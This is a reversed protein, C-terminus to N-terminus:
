DKILGRLLKRIYTDRIDNKNSPFLKKPLVIFGM